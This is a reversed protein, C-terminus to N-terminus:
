DRFIIVGLNIPETAEITKDFLFVPKEVLVLKYISSQLAVVETLEYIPRLFRWGFDLEFKLARRKLFSSGVEPFSASNVFISVPIQTFKQATEDVLM